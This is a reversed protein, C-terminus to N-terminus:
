GCYGGLVAELAIGVSDDELKFSARGFSVVMIFNGSRARPHVETNFKARIDKAFNIGHSFDLGQFLAAHVSSASSFDEQGKFGNVATKTLLPLITDNSNESSCDGIQIDNNAGESMIVDVAPNSKILKGMRVVHKSFHIKAGAHFMDRSSMRQCGIPASKADFLRLFNDKSLSLSGDYAKMRGRDLDKIMCYSIKWLKVLDTLDQTTSKDTILDDGSGNDEPPSLICHDVLAHFISFEV